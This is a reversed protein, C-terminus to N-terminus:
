RQCRPCFCTGRSGLSIKTILGKCIFCPKGKRDYVKLREEMGGKKGNTDRYSDVSSGRHKIGERLVFIIKDLLLKVEKSSLSNAPRRPDIKALFLAEQAYINGIGCILSQDLLLVKIKTKRDRLMNQFCDADIDFPEPGLRKIFELDKYDRRLRLEGLVRQDMYNLYKGDGLRFVVRAKENKEGYLLWGAIRLHVILFKNEKLVFILVKAKRIIDKISEGVIEKKFEALSPEKIVKPHNVEISVIKKNIIKKRLDRKITEVEPLEPM